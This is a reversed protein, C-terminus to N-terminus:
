HSRKPPLPGDGCTAAKMKTGGPKRFAPTGPTHGQTLFLRTQCRCAYLRPIFRNAPMHQTAPWQAQIYRSLPRRVQARITSLASSDYRGRKRLPCCHLARLGRCSLACAPPCASQQPRFRIAPRCGPRPSAVSPGARQTAYPQAGKSISNSISATYMAAAKIPM